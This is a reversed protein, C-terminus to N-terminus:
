RHGWIMGDARGSVLTLGIFMAVIGAGVRQLPSPPLVLEDFRGIGDYYYADSKWLYSGAPKAGYGILLINSYGGDNNWTSVPNGWAAIMQVAQNYAARQTMVPSESGTQDTNILQIFWRNPANVTVIIVAGDSLTYVTAAHTVSAFFLCSALVLWKATFCCIHTKM